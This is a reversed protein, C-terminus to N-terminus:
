RDPILALSELSDTFQKGLIEQISQIKEDIKPDDLKKDITDIMVSQVKQLKKLAKRLVARRPGPFFDVLEELLATTAHEIADGAMSQGFGENTIAKRDAEPKVLVFIVNCLTVPDDILREFIRGNEMDLLDVNVLDRVRKIADINIALNWEREQNDQFLHM